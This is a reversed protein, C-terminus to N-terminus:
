GASGSPRTVHVLLAVGRESGSGSRRLSAISSPASGSIISSRASAAAAAASARAAPRSWRRPLLVLQLRVRRGRGLLLPLPAVEDPRQQAAGGEHDAQDDEGSQTNM